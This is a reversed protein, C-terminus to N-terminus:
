RDAPVPWAALRQLAAATLGAGSLVCTQGSRRWTVVLRGDLKFTRLATGHVVKVPAHPQALAPAAVITYAVHRGHWVYYITVASRGGLADTRAGVARWHLSSAWNPFYVQGVSERLRLAPADPDPAPAPRVSGRTALAAAQSVTPGGPTGSPLLIVLALAAAALAVTLAGAYGIRRRALSGASPRQAEIRARLAAPARDTARAQELAEVVRREREYLASLRPSAAVRAQLRQRREPDLTGDALASLEALERPTPDTQGPSAM